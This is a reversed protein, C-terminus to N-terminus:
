EECIRCQSIIYEGYNLKCLAALADNDYIELQWDRFNPVSIPLGSWFWFRGPKTNNDNLFDNISDRINVDDVVKPISIKFAIGPM